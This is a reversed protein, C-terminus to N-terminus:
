RVEDLGSLEDHMSRMEESTAAEASRVQLTKNEHVTHEFYFNINIRGFNSYIIEFESLANMQEELDSVRQQASICHRNKTELESVLQMFEENKENQDCYDLTAKSIDGNLSSSLM